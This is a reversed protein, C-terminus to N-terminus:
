GTSVLPLSLELRMVSGNVPFVKLVEELPQGTVLSQIVNMTVKHTVVVVSGTPRSAAIDLLAARVRMVVEAISEGEPPRADVPHNVWFAHQEAYGALIEALTLGEWVGLHVENLRSDRKVELAHRNATAEATRWARELASAYVAEVPALALEDALSEAQQRGEANLPVDSQGQYRGQINWDTVGHRCVLLSTM